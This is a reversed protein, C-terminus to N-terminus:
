TSVATDAFYANAKPRFLFFALMLFIVIGPLMMTKIPSTALSITFGAISWCVYLFRAWNKRRLMAIGSVLTVALGFCMLGYQIPISIPSQSMLKIAIPDHMHGVISLPSIVGIVILAWCVVTVSTPRPNVLNGM